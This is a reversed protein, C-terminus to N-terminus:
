DRAQIKGVGASSWSLLITTLDDKRQLPLVSSVGFPRGLHAARIKASTLKARASMPEVSTAPSTLSEATKM